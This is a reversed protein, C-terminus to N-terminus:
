TGVTPVRADGVPVIPDGSGSCHFAGVPTSANPRTTCVAAGVRAVGVAADLARRRDRGSRFVPRGAKACVPSRDGAEGPPGRGREIDPGDARRWLARQPGRANARHLPARSTPAHARVTDWRRAGRPFRRYLRRESAACSVHCPGLPRLVFGLGAVRGAATSTAELAFVAATLGQTAVLGPM